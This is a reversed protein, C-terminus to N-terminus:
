ISNYLESIRYLIASHYMSIYSYIIYTFYKSILLLAIEQSQFQTHIWRTLSTKYMSDVMCAFRIDIVKEYYPHEDKM